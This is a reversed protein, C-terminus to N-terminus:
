AVVSAMGESNRILESPMGIFYGQAYDVGMVSLGKLIEPTEVYKAVTRINLEMALTAMSRVFAHYVVDKLMGKIFEGEIKIYDIPIRKIYHYSSFGSGFDEIAFKFGEHKLELIFREMIALNKVTERETLKFVVNSPKIGYGTTLKVVTPIFRTITLSRPSLNVFLQGTYGEARIKDFAKEIIIYDLNHVIGINEAIDIFEGAVLLKGDKVLRMLLENIEIKGTQVNIIPQFHPIINEKKNVANLLFLSKEKNQLSVTTIDETTPLSIMNKGKKKSKYMANDAIRFLDKIDRSHTPCISIGISVTTIIKKGNPDKLDLAELDNTLRTAVLLAQEDTTEPLIITFEDGGYRALIDGDRLSQRLTIAALQLFRDGFHHGYSDNITKFNDFDIVMLGFSYNRRHARGAEYQLLEWFVRQNFLNTLPDRTAYFAMERTYSHVAKISGAVNAFINLVSEALLDSDSTEPRQSPLTMGAIGEVESTRLVRTKFELVDQTIDCMTIGADVVEHAINLCQIEGTDKNESLLRTKIVQELMQMLLADPKNRWFIEIDYCGEETKFASFINVADIYENIEGLLSLVHPKWDRILESTIIFRELLRTEFFLIDRTVITNKM